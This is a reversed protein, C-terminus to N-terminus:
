EIVEWHGGRDPGVRKLIGIAKLKNINYDVAKKSLNGKIMMENKSISPNMRILKVITRQVGTLREVGWEVGKEVGQTTEMREQITKRELDPRKFAISFWNKDAEIAAGSLKYQRMAKDIRVLGSGAKEVLEMRQMLGFLLPNRPISKKYLDKVQLTGILGGPNNIVVKDKFIDVQINATSYYDRHAIANLLAERLAEEPLELREERPGGKIIYETNLHAQIYTMADQYNSYLDKGFEKRDLIKAKDAGRYFVCSITASIFHKAINKCFFLVAANRLAGDELLGLNELISDRKMVKSIGAERMFKNFALANFDKQIIFKKNLAEDFRVLGEARFLDRVEDRKLQQSNAGQRIYFKGNISYPKDKGEPVEIALVNDHSSISVTLAPDLNRAIDQIESKMKNTAKVGKIEGEDNVGLLIIGGIANAFACIDRSISSSLAEKFEINYGEGQEIYLSLNSVM